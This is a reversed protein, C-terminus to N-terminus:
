PDAVAPGRLWRSGPNIGPVILIVEVSDGRSPDCIAGLSITANEGAAKQVLMYVEYVDHVRFDSAGALSLLIRDSENVRAGDLLPSALARKATEVVSNDGSAAATGMVAYGMGMMTTKIDDFDQRMSGPNTIM